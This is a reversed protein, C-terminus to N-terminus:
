RVQLVAEVDKVIHDVLHNMRSKDEMLRTVFNDIHGNLQRDVSAYITEDPLKANPMQQEIIDHASLYLSKRLQMYKDNQHQTNPM